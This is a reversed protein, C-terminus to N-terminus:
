VRGLQYVYFWLVMWGFIVGEAWDALISPDPSEDKDLGLISIETKKFYRLQRPRHHCSLIVVISRLM